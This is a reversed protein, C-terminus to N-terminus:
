WILALPIQEVCFFCLIYKSIRRDHLCPRSVHKDLRIFFVEEEYTLVNM